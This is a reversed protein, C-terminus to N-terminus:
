SGNGFSVLDTRYTDLRILQTGSVSNLRVRVTILRISNSGSIAVSTVFRTPIFSPFDADATLATEAGDVAPYAGLNIEAMERKAINLAIMYNRNLTVNRIQNQVARTFGTFLVGAVAIMITLEMLSMGKKKGKLLKM